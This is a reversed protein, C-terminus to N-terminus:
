IDYLGRSGIIAQIKISIQERLQKRSLSANLPIIRDPDAKRMKEYGMYVREYFEISQKEMRDNTRIGIREKSMEPKMRFLFTIDPTLEKLMPANIQMAEEVMDRGYGQYAISSDVFRDCLVVKGDSLAPKLIEEIHQARAAAYLLLETRYSMNDNKADLVLKRIREGLRTGGPERTVIVPIEKTELWKKLYKIQTTKGTGDLGEFTVFIGRYKM